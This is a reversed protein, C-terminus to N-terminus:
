NTAQDIFNIKYIKCSILKAQEDGAEIYRGPKLLQADVLEGNRKLYLSSNSKTAREHGLKLDPGVKDVVKLDCEVDASVIEPVTVSYRVTVNDRVRDVLISDTRSFPQQGDDGMLNLPALTEKLRNMCKANGCELWAKGTLQAKFLGLSNEKSHTASYVNVFVQFTPSVYCGSSFLASVLLLGALIRSSM